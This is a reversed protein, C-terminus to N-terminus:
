CIEVIGIQKVQRSLLLVGAYTSFNVPRGILIAFKRSVGRFIM